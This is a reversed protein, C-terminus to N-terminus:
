DTLQAWDVAVTVDPSNISLTNSVPHQLDSQAIIIIMIIIIIMNLDRQFFEVIPEFQRQFHFHIDKRHSNQKREEPELHVDSTAALLPISHSKM